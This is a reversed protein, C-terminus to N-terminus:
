TVLGKERIITIASSSLFTIIVYNHDIPISVTNIKRSNGSM